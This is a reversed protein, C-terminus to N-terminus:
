PTTPITAQRLRVVRALDSSYLGVVGLMGLTYVLVYPFFGGFYSGLMGYIWFTSLFGLPLLYVRNHEAAKVLVGSILAQLAAITATGVFVGPLGFDAFFAGLMTIPMGGGGEWRAFEERMFNELTLNPGPLLFSLDMLMGQGGLRHTGFYDVATQFNFAQEAFRFVLALAGTVAASTGAEGTADLNDYAQGSLAARLAGVFGIVLLGLAGVVIGRTTLRRRWALLFLSSLLTILLQGRWGSLLMFLGGVAGLVLARRFRERIVAVWVAINILITSPWLVPGAGAVLEARALDISPALLPVGRAAYLLTYGAMGALFGFLLFGDSPLQLQLRPRAALRQLVVTDAAAGLLFGLTLGLHGALIARAADPSFEFRLILAPWYYTALLIANTLFLWSRVANWRDRLLRYAVIALAVFHAIWFLANM